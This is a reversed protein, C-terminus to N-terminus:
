KDDVSLAGRVTRRRRLLQSTVLQLQSFWISSSAQAMDSCGRSSTYQVTSLQWHHPSPFRQWADTIRIVWSLMPSCYGSLTSLSSTFWITASFPSVGAASQVSVHQLVNVGRCYYVPLATQALRYPKATSPLST